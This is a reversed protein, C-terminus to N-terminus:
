EVCPKTHRLLAEEACKLVRPEISWDAISATSTVPLYLLFLRFVFVDQVFPQADRKFFREVENMGRQCESEREKENERERVCKLVDPGLPMLLMSLLLFWIYCHVLLLCGERQDVFLGGANDLTPM